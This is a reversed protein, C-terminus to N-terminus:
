LPRVLGMVVEGSEGRKTDDRLEFGTAQHVEIENRIEVRHTNGHADEESWLPVYAKSSINVCKVVYCYNKFAISKCPSCYRDILAGM